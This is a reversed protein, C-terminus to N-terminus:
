VGMNAAKFIINQIYIVAISINKAISLKYLIQKSKPTDINASEFLSKVKNYLQKCDTTFLLEERNENLVKGITINDVNLLNPHKM